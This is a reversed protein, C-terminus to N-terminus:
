VDSPKRVESTKVAKLLPTQSLSTQHSTKLVQEHM